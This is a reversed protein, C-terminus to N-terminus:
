LKAAEALQKRNALSDMFRKQQQSGTPPPKENLLQENQKRLDKILDETNFDKIM